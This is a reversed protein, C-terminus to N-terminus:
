KGALLLDMVARAQPSSWDAGGALRAREVGRADYLITTPMGEVPPKLAFALAYTPETYFPLPPNRDIFAHGATEDEAKGVSVPVVVLPKGAYAAQLRALSPIEEKCPACWNAWVNVVAVRGKFESITHPKGAADRFVTDPAPAPKDSVVLKAMAGQALSKLDGPPNSCGALAYLLVLSATGLLVRRALAHGAPELVLNM